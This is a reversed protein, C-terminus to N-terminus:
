IAYSPTMTLASLTFAGARTGLVGIEAINKAKRATKQIEFIGKFINHSQSNVM